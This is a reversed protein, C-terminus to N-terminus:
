YGSIGPGAGFRGPVRLSGPPNDGDKDKKPLGQNLTKEPYAPPANWKPDDSPPLIFDEPHPPPKIPGDTTQCGCLCLFAILLCGKWM